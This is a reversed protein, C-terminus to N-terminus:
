KNALIMAGAAVALIGMLRPDVNINLLPLVGTLVLWMGLLLMGTNSALKM